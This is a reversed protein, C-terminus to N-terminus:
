KGLQSIAYELQERTLISQPNLRGADDPPLYGRIVNWMLAESAWASGKAADTYPIGVAWAGVPGAGRAIDYRLLMILAQERTVPTDPLFQGSGNGLVIGAQTAWAAAPNKGDMDSFTIELDLYATPRGAGEYLAEVFALRTVSALAQASSSRSINWHSRAKPAIFSGEQSVTKIYAAVIKPITDAPSEPEKEQTSAWIVDDANLGTVAPFGHAGEEEFHAASLAVRFTQEATIPRGGYTMNALRMGAPNGLYIDYSIGYIQDTGEPVSISGDYIITYRGACEELWDRLQIGTMEVVCLPISDGYLTYCDAGTLRVPEEATQYLAMSQEPQPSALALDAQAAWLMAEHLLNM